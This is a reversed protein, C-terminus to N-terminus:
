STTNLMEDIMRRGSKNLDVTEFVTEVPLYIIDEPVDDPKSDEPAFMLVKSNEGTYETLSDLKRAVDSEGGMTVEGWIRRSETLGSIDVDAVQGGVTRVTRYSEDVIHLYEECLVEVEDSRLSYITRKQKEGNIIRRLHEEVNWWNIISASPPRVSNDFLVPYDERSVIEVDNLQLAKYIRYREENPDDISQGPSVEKEQVFDGEDFYLLKIKSGSNVVGVLIESTIIRRYSAGVIRGNNAFKNLYQIENSGSDYDDPDASPIDEWHIAILRNEWLYEAAPEKIGGKHRAFGTGYEEYM